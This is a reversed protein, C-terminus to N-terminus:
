TSPCFSPLYVFELRILTLLCSRLPESTHCTVRLVDAPGPPCDDHKEDCTDIWTQAVDWSAASSAYRSVMRGRYFRSFSSGDDLPVSECCGAM